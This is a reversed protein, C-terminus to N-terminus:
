TSLPLRALIYLFQPNKAKKRKVIAHFKVARNLLLFLNNLM